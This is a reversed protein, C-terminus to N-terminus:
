TYQLPLNGSNVYTTLVEFGMGRHGSTISTMNIPCIQRSIDQPILEQFIPTVDHIVGNKDNTTNLKQDTGGSSM